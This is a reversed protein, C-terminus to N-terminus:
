IHPPWCGQLVTSGRSLFFISNYRVRDHALEISDVFECGTEELYMKINDKWGHETRALPRKWQRSDRLSAEDSHSRIWDGAEKSEKNELVVRGHNDNFTSGRVFFNKRNANVQLTRPEIQGDAWV